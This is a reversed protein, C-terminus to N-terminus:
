RDALGRTRCDPLIWIHYDHKIFGLSPNCWSHRLPESHTALVPLRSGDEAHINGQFLICPFISCSLFADIQCAQVETSRHLTSCSPAMNDRTPSSSSLINPNGEIGVSGIQLLPGIGPGITPNDYLEAMVWGGLSLTM